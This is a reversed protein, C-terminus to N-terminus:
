YKPVILSLGKKIKNKLQVITIGGGSLIHKSEEFFMTKLLGILRNHEYDQRDYENMTSMHQHQTLQHSPNIFDKIPKLHIDGFFLHM